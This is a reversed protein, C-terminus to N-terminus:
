IRNPCLSCIGFFSLNLSALHELAILWLCHLISVKHIRSSKLSHYYLDVSSSLELVWYLDRTFEPKLFSFDTIFCTCRECYHIFSSTPIYLFYNIDATSIRQVLNYEYALNKHKIPDSKMSGQQLLM